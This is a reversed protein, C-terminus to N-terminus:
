TKAGFISARQPHAVRMWLEVAMEKRNQLVNWIFLDLEPGLVGM